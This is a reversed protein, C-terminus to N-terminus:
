IKFCILVHRVYYHLMHKSQVKSKMELKTKVAIEEEKQKDKRKKRIERKESKIELGYHPNKVEHVELKEDFTVGSKKTAAKLSSKPLTITSTSISSSVTDLKSSSKTFESSADGFNNEKSLTAAATVSSSSDSDKLFYEKKKFPNENEEDGFSNKKRGTEPVKLTSEVNLTTSSSDRSYKQSDNYENELVIRASSANNKKLNERVFSDYDTKAYYPQNHHHHHHHNLPPLYGNAGSSKSLYQHSHRQLSGHGPLHYNHHGNYNPSMQIYPQAVINIGHAFSNDFNNLVPYMNSQNPPANYVQHSLHPLHAHPPLPPQTSNPPGNKYAIQNTASSARNKKYRSLDFQEPIDEVVEAEYNNM